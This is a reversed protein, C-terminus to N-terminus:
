TATANYPDAFLFYTVKYKPTPTCSPCPQPTPIRQIVRSDAGLQSLFPHRTFASHGSFSLGPSALRVARKLATSPLSVGRGVLPARRRSTSEAGGAWGGRSPSSRSNGGAMGSRGEARSAEGGGWGGKVATGARGAPGRERGLRVLYRKREPGSEGAAASTM